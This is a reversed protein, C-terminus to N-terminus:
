ADLRRYEAGCTNITSGSLVYRAGGYRFWQIWDGCQVGVLGTSDSYYGRARPNARKVREAITEHAM